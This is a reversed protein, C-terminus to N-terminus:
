KIKARMSTGEPSHANQTASTCRSGPIKDQRCKATSGKEVCNETLFKSVTSARGPSQPDAFQSRMRKELHLPVWEQARRNSSVKFIEQIQCSNLPYIILKSVVENDFLPTSRFEQCTTSSVLASRRPLRFTKLLIETIRENVSERMRHLAHVHLVCEVVRCWSRYHLDDHVLIALERQFCWLFDGSM